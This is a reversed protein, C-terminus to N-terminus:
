QGNVMSWQGNGMAAEVVPLCHIISLPSEAVERGVIHLRSRFRRAPERRAEIVWPGNAM